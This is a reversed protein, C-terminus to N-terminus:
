RVLEYYQEFDTRECVKGLKQYERKMALMLHEIRIVGSDEAARFAAALAVNKINGGAIKFKRALFEFDIEEALPTQPPFIGRWIRLRDREDPFPFEISFHLRRVFADDINKSFNSALIIAGEYEEVRQLLYNIEINAYRDHADKIESRKGFLADAEDFFLIANSAQAEAFVRSLNKETEGIYKSVVLSLDVKYLDLELEKAIIEASLTKGTGSNGTFLAIAGKGLSLKREFGWDTYVKTRYRVQQCLEQLQALIDKPLVLDQWVRKPTIKRAFSVLHRSSEHRCGKLLDETTITYNTALRWSAQSEAHAIARQIQGGSFRFASALYDLNVDPSIIASGNLHTQWLLLRSREDPLPLEILIFRYRWGDKPQWSARSGLFVLGPFQAIEREVLQVAIQFKPEDALLEHWGDLYLISRYIRAERFAVTLLTFFPVDAKLMAPLDLLLLSRKRGWAVAEACAKKGTGAAGHLLCLWSVDITELSILQELVTKVAEPLVLSHLHCQPIIRQALPIPHCLRSDPRDSELLFEAIRDDLKLSRSLLPSPRDAPDDHLLLLNYDLLPSGRIFAERAKVREELSYCFLRLALDVSPRKRTVDDQLYAYLKQYRLDLEPALTLLLLDTEFLSLNFIQQLYPLRLTVNEAQTEAVRQQIEAWLQMARIPTETRSQESQENAILGDIEEDSIHLGQFETPINSNRRSRFQQIAMELLYDLRRFEDRLHELNTTYPPM